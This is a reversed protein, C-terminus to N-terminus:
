RASDASSVTAGTTGQSGFIRINVRNSTTGTVSTGNPLWVRGIMRNASPGTTVTQVTSGQYVATLHVYTEGDTCRLNQVGEGAIRCFGGTMPRAATGLGAMPNTEESVGLFISGSALANPTAVRSGTDWQMMDGTDIGSAAHIAYSEYGDFLSKITSYYNAM